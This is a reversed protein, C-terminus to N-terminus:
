NPFWPPKKSCAAAQQLRLAAYRRGSSAARRLVRLGPSGCHWLGGSGHVWPAAGSVDLVMLLSCAPNPCYFKLHQPLSSEVELQMSAPRPCAAPLAPLDSACLDTTPSRPVYAVLAVQPWRVGTNYLPDEPSM